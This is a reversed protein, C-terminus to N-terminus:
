GNSASAAKSGILSLIPRRGNLLKSWRGAADSPRNRAPPRLKPILHHVQLFVVNVITWGTRSAPQFHRKHLARRMWRTARAEFQLREGAQLASVLDFACLVLCAPKPSLVSTQLSLIEMTIIAKADTVDFTRRLDIRREIKKAAHACNSLFPMKGADSDRMTGVNGVRLTYSFHPSAKRVLYFLRLAALPNGFSKSRLAAHHRRHM